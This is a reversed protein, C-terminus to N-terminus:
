AFLFFNGDIEIPLGRLDMISQQFVSVGGKSITSELAGGSLLGGNGVMILSFSFAKRGNLGMLGHRGIRRIQHITVSYLLFALGPPDHSPELGLFLRAM